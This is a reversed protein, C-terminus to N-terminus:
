QKPKLQRVFRAHQMVPMRQRIDQNIKIDITVTIYGATESLCEVIQGWPNIVMSHGWTQRGCPHIGTQGVAVIWCQTEIARARLLPEWHARGTVYTFAAPVVIVDAGDRTLQQFLEPFRLDYCISLGLNAFPTPTVVVREGALFTESERYRQHSDSVDVDFMHLKDYDAQLVGESSFVLCTTKVDNDIRVPFSGVVLWVGYDSALKALASQLAGKGLVEAHQHYDERHGFIIANEPLVVWDVQQGKMAQLQQEIFVLNGQPDSGSTMQILAVKSM